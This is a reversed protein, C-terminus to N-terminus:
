QWISSSSHFVNFLNPNLFKLITRIVNTFIIGYLVSQPIVAAFLGVKFSMTTSHSSYVISMWRSISIRRLSKAELRFEKPLYGYVRDEGNCQDICEFASHGPVGAINIQTVERTEWKGAEWNFWIRSVCKLSSINIHIFTFSMSYSVYMVM